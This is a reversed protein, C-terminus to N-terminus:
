ATLREEEHYEDDLNVEWLPRKDPRGALIGDVALMATLMSHDQNNYRHMGNRGVLFLNELRDTFERIVPFEPYSGFYAPYAKPVRVVVGERVQAPDILDIRALEGAALSLFDEDALSWMEDGQTCFYELGLWVKQPDAVLYPSWNNFVQLRGLRVEREQVYIWNDDVLGPPDSRRAPNEALLRDVLLGATIFDRYVLGEAVRRVEAPAQPELGRILEKVPMSSFFWDGALETEEGTSEDRVRAAAVRGGEWRLGTVRQGLRVEGGLEEVRRAV